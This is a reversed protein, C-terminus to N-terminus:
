LAQLEEPLFALVTDDGDLLVQQGVLQQDPDGKKAGPRTFEVWGSRVTGARGKHPGDVAVIVSQFTQLPPINTPIGM